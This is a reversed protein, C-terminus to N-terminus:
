RLVYLNIATIKIITYLKSEHFTSYILAITIKESKITKRAVPIWLNSSTPVFFTFLFLFPSYYTHFLKHLNRCSNQVTQCKGQHNWAGIRCAAPHEMLRFKWLFCLFKLFYMLRKTATSHIKLSFIQRSSKHELFSSFDFLNPCASCTFLTTSLSKAFVANSFAFISM